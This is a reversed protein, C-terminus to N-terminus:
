WNAPNVDVDYRTGTPGRVPTVRIETGSLVTHHPKGDFARELWTRTANLDDGTLVLGLLAMAHERAVPSTEKLDGTATLRVFAIRGERVQYTVTLAAPDAQKQCNVGGESPRCAFGDERYHSEMTQSTARDLTPEGVHRYSAANLRIWLLAWQKNRPLLKLGVGGAEQELYENRQYDEPLNAALWSKAPKRDRKPVARDIVAGFLRLAEDKVPNRAPKTSEVRLRLWGARSNDIMQFGVSESYEATERFCLDIAVPRTFASTCEFGNDALSKQIEQPTDTEAAPAPPPKPEGNLDKILYGGAAAGILLAVAAVVAGLVRWIRGSGTEPETNWRLDAATLGSGSYSQPQGTEWAPPASSPTTGEGYRGPGGADTGGYGANQPAPGPSVQRSVVEGHYV